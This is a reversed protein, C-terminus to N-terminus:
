RNQNKEGAAIRKRRSATTWFKSLRLGFDVVSSRWDRFSPKRPSGAENEFSGQIMAGCM